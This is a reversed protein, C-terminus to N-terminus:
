KKVATVIETYGSDKYGLHKCLESVTMHAAKKIREVSAEPLSTIEEQKIQSPVGVYCEIRAFATRGKPKKRPLMGRITRRVLMDPRRPFYPGQNVQGVDFKKAYNDLLQERDGTIVAKECNVVTVAEGQLAQKAAKAALRGLILNTADIITKGAAKGAGDPKEKAKAM